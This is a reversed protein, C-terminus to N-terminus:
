WDKFSDLFDHRETTERHIVCSNLLNWDKKPLTFYLEKKEIQSWSNEVVPMFNYEEQNTAAAAEDGLRGGLNVYAEHLSGKQSWCFVSATLM